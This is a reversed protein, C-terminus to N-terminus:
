TVTKTEGDPGLVNALKVTDIPILPQEFAILTPQRVQGINTVQVHIQVLCHRIYLSISDIPDVHNFM